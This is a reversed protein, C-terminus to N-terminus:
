KEVVLTNSQVKGLWFNMLKIAPMDLNVAKAGSGEFDATLQNKGPLLKVEFESTEQCWFQDLTLRLTYISGVRLPVVYDDLRGAVNSHKKDAFKFERTNGAADTFNLRVRNPLQVKGNALMYGLNLTVDHDGVNRFALQLELVGSSHPDASLSLQVGNVSSGGSLSQNTQAGSAPFPVAISIMLYFCIAALVSISSARM